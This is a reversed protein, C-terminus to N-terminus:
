VRLCALAGQRHGWESIFDLCMTSQFTHVPFQLNLMKLVIPACSYMDSQSPACRDYSWPAAIWTVARNEPLTHAGVPCRFVIAMGLSFM